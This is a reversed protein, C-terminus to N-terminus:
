RVLLTKRGKQGILIVGRADHGIPRGLLDHHTTGDASPMREGHAMIGGIVAEPNAKALAVAFDPLGYGSLSDPTAFNSASERVIQCLEAASLAPNASWLSALLGCMTPASFSTGSSCAPQGSAPDIIWALTGRCAVDPKVYPTTWGVSTFASPAQEIDTAGVTMVSAVDAPFSIKQWEKARENGAASCVLIGKKTALTAGRSIQTENQALQSWTHSYTTDDFDSYGLSSNILDAGISDALEAGEVWMDEELPTESPGYETRIVYYRAEPATGWVGYTTDTAMCSLVQTGHASANFLEVGLKDERAYCDHWGVVKGHLFDWQPLNNFGGDLVAILMGEGRFGAAHLMDGHLEVIPRRFDDTDDASFTKESMELKNRAAAPAIRSVNALAGIEGGIQEVRGIFPMAAFAEAAIAEGDARRVVVTNLWRSRTVIQWGENALAELYRSPICFDASDIAISQRERRQMARETLACVTSGDKDTLHLRYIFDNALAGATMASLLAIIALRRKM